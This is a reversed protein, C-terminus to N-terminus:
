SRLSQLQSAHLMVDDYQSFLAPLNTQGRLEAISEAAHLLLRRGAVGPWEKPLLEPPLLPDGRMCTDFAAVLGVAGALLSPLRDAPLKATAAALQSVTTRHARTFGLWRASIDDIAWLRKAIRKPDTEQGVRLREAVALSVSDSVGLEKAIDLVLDDWDNACVYVGGGLPAGMRVLQERLTNRESRRDEGIAFTVLHWTGDWPALGSDQDFALRVFEPEPELEIRGAPTLELVAKRGRGSQTFSGESVLRALCLRIQHVTFGGADGVSYLEDAIIRGDDHVMGLVFTRTSVSEEMSPVRLDHWASPPTSAQEPASGIATM